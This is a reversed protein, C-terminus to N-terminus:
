LKIISMEEIYKMLFFLLYFNKAKQDIDIYRIHLSFLRIEVSFRALTFFSFLFNMKELNRFICMPFEVIQIQNSTELFIWFKAKETWKCKWIYLIVPSYLMSTSGRLILANLGIFSKETKYYIVYVNIDRDTM